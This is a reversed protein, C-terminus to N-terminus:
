HTRRLLWISAGLVVLAPLLTVLAAWLDYILGLNALIQIGLLYAIGAVGALIIKKSAAAGRMSGFSFPVAILALALSSVPLALKQWLALLYRETSQGTVDLYAIYRRLQLPSLSVAPLELLEIEDPELYPEWTAEKLRQTVLKGDERRKTTVDRLLWQEPDSVDADRARLFFKLRRDEDFEFIQIDTPVFGDKIRGINVYRRGRQMWLGDGRQTLQSGTIKEHRAELAEQHTPSIFTEELVAAALVVLVMLQVVSLGVRSVSVGAARMAILENGRALGGLALTTGLLAIFPLLDLIYRPFLAAEFALADALGFDKKGVEDLQQLFDLFSFLPVLVLTVLLFARLVHAGIYRDLKSM